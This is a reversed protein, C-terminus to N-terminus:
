QGFLLALCMHVIVNDSPVCSFSDLHGHQSEMELIVDSEEADFLKTLKECFSETEHPATSEKQHTTDMQNDQQIVSMTTGIAEYSNSLPAGNMM